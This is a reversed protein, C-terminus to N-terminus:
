YWFSVYLRIVNADFSFLPEEGPAFQGNSNATIDRFNDYDFSIRDYFLNFSTKDVFGYSAKIEYSAGIGIQQSSFTSLEKDRAFFNTANEFPLLDSYFDAQTQDNTRFHLELTLGEVSKLPHIYRLEINEAEIGFSDSFTRYDARVAARYPLYYIGRIAFSNSNRTNPYLESTTSTSGDNNLFRVQRYPNNLFGEDIVTEANLSILFNKTIVQSLGIRYRFQDSYEEFEPDTSRGVTNEGYTFGLSLTSLDGFFDQSFDLTFTDAEYDNESSNTYSVSTLTKDYLYTAGVSYQTREETYPSGFSMVDISAGTVQDVYYNGFVSVKEAFNKRVLISPGAIQVGDGEYEHYLIDTRDEPLVAANATLSIFILTCSVWLTVLSKLM